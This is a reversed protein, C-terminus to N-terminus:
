FYSLNSIQWGLNLPELGKCPRLRPGRVRSDLIVFRLNSSSKPSFQGYTIFACIRTKFFQCLWNKKWKFLNESKSWTAEKSSSKRALGSLYLFFMKVAYNQKEWLYQFCCQKLQTNKSLHVSTGPLPTLPPFHYSFRTINFFSTNSSTLTTHTNWKPNM